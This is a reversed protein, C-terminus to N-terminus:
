PMIGYILIKGSKGWGGGGIKVDGIICASEAIFVSSDIKPEKGKYGKIM